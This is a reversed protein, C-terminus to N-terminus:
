PKLVLTHSKQICGKVAEECQRALQSYSLTATCDTAVFVFDGCVEAIKLLYSDVWARLRRKARNRCVAKSSVRRKSATFGVRVGEARPAWQVSVGPRRCYVRAQAVRGFDSRRNLREIRM